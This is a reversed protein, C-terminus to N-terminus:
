LIGVTFRCAVIFIYLFIFSPSVIYSFIRLFLLTMCLMVSPIYKPFFCQLDIDSWPGTFQRSGPDYEFPLRHTPPPLVGEGSGLGGQARPFYATLVLCGHLKGM